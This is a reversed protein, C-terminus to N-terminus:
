LINRTELLKSETSIDYWYGNNPQYSMLAVINDVPLKGYKKYVLRLEANIEISQGSVNWKSSFFHIEFVIDKVSKKLVGSKLYKFGTVESLEQILRTKADEVNLINDM